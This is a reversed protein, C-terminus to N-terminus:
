KRPNHIAVMARYDIDVLPRSPPPPLEPAQHELDSIMEGLESAGAIRRKRVMEAYGESLAHISRGTVAGRRALELYSRGLAGGDFHHRVALDQAVRLVARAPLHGDEHLVFAAQLYNYFPVVRSGYHEFVIPSSQRELHILIRQVVAGPTVYSAFRVADQIDDEYCRGQRMVAALMEGDVHGNCIDAYLSYVFADAEADDGLLAEPVLSGQEDRQSPMECRRRLLATLKYGLQGRLARFRLRMLNQLNPKLTLTAYRVGDLELKEVLRSRLQEPSGSLIHIEAGADGLERMLTAAGPVTRKQDPREVATRLLDRVTDFDTRLYTKDLDWRAVFPPM